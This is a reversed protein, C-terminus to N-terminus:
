RTQASRKRNFNMSCPIHRNNHFDILSTDAELTENSPVIHTTNGTAAQLIAQTSLKENLGFWIEQM